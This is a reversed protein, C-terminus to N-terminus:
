ITGPASRHRISPLWPNHRCITSCPISSSICCIALTTTLLGCHDQSHFPLVPFDTSHEDPSRMLQETSEALPGASSSM